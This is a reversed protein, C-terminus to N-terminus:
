ENAFTEVIIERQKEIWISVSSDTTGVFTKAHSIAVISQVLADIVPFFAAEGRVRRLLIVRDAIGIKKVHNDLKALSEDTGDTMLFACSKPAASESSLSTALKHAVDHPTFVLDNHSHLFDGQRWHLAVHIASCRPRMRPRDRVLSFCWKTDAHAVRGCPERDSGALLREVADNAAQRLESAPQVARLMRSFVAADHWVGGWGITEVGLLAVTTAAQLHPEDCLEAGGGHSASPRLALEALRQQLADDSADVLTDVCQIRAFPVLVCGFARMANNQAESSCEVDRWFHKSFDLSDLSLSVATSVVRRAGDGASAIAVFEEFQIAEIGLERTLQVVDLPWQSWASSGDGGHVLQGCLPPFVLTWEVGREAKQLEVARLLRTLILLRSFFGEGHAISFLLFQQESSAVALVLLVVILRLLM